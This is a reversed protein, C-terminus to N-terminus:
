EEAEENDMLYGCGECKKGGSTIHDQYEIIGCDLCLYIIMSQRKERSRVIRRIGSSVKEKYISM